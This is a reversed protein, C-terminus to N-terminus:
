LWLHGDTTRVVWWTVILTGLSGGDEISHGEISAIGHSDLEVM